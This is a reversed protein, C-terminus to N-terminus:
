FWWLAAGPAFYQLYSVGCFNLNKKNLGSRSQGHRKECNWGFKKRGLFTVSQTLPNIVNPFENLSQSWGNISDEGNVNLSVNSSYTVFNIANSAQCTITGVMNDKLQLVNGVVTAGSARIVFSPPASPRADVMCTIQDGPFYWSAVPSLSVTPKGPKFHLCSNHEFSTSNTSRLYTLRMILTKFM